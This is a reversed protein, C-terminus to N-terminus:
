LGLFEKKKLDFEEQTIAGMDLLQKLKLVEDTATASQQVVVPTPNKSNSMATNLASKFPNMAKANMDIVLTETIGKIRLKCLGFPTTKDDVSQIDHLFVAKTEGAGLINNCFLVRNTTIVLAGNIKNKLKFVDVKLADNNSIISVNAIIAALVDEDQEILKQAGSIHPAGIIGTGTGSQKVAEKVTM